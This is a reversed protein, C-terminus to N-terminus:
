RVVMMMGRDTELPPAAPSLRSAASAEDTVTGSSAGAHSDRWGTALVNSGLTAAGHIELIALSGDASSM